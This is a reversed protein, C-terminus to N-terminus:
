GVVGTFVLGARGFASILDNVILQTDVSPTSIDWGTRDRRGLMEIWPKITDFAIQQM